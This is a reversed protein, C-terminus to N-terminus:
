NHESKVESSPKMLAELKSISKINTLILDSHKDLRKTTRDDYEKLASKLEIKLDTIALMQQDYKEKIQKEVSIIQVGQLAAVEDPRLNQIVSVAEAVKTGENITPMKQYGFMAGMGILLTGISKVLRELKTDVVVIKESKPISKQEM